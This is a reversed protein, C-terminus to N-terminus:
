GSLTKPHTNPPVKENVSLSDKHGRPATADVDHPGWLFATNPVSADTAVYVEDVNPLDPDRFTAIDVPDSSARYRAQNNSAVVYIGYDRAIDSFTQSFGRAFTDTAAVFVLDSSCVDSSWDSIRM